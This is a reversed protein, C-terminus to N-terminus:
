FVITYNNKSDTHICVETIMPNNDYAVSPYSKAIHNAIKLAQNKSVKLHFISEKTIDFYELTNEPDKSLAYIIIAKFFKTARRMKVLRVLEDGTLYM